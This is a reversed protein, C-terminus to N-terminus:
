LTHVPQRDQAIFDLDKNFNKLHRKSSEKTLYCRFIENTKM